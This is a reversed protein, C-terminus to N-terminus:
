AVKPDIQLLRATAASQLAIEALEESTPSINIACDAFIYQEQDKIMLYAGSVKNVTKKPKIIQLAPLVACSTTHIAGSVLGDAYNAYVLITAFYNPDKFQELATYIDIRGKRREVNVKALAEIHEFTQPNFVEHHTLKINYQKAYQKITEEEGIYIPTIIN